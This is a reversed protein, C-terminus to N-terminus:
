QLLYEQNLGNVKVKIKKTRPAFFGLERLLNTTIIEIDDGRTHPLFLIFETINDINSNTLKINLSSLVNFDDVIIYHDPNDGHFKIKAKLSCKLGNNFFFNINARHTKKYENPIWGNNKIILFINKMWKKNNSITISISNLNQIKNIEQFSSDTLCSNVNESNSSSVQFLFFLILFIKKKDM